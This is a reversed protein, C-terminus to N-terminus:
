SDVGDDEYLSLTSQAADTFATAYATPALLTAHPALRLLLAQVWQESAVELDVEVTGDPGPRQATVPYYEVVWRAPPALRLTVTTTEADTFWGGTLDRARAGPDRVPTDLQTATLIRDVRFARDGRATHCWADLYLVEEVRSLGRPDVVRQSAQDRSPVHYTIEVQHGHEIAAELTPRVASAELPTPTVHLRLLGEGDQGAAQELKALTREIVDRAEAPATELMTRLAVVLATAEAPSFRVPRALYDANDVRIIRDGELAELDVEILDGPLGPSVGTMFLLRLDREIQDADTGFHAAADDLRVEGRALLYPVLALLRAVQDPATDASQTM